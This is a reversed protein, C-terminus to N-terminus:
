QEHFSIRGCQLVQVTQKPAWASPKMQANWERYRQMMKGALERRQFTLNIRETPDQSLDFLWPFAGPRTNSILKNDGSLVAFEPGTRWYLTEHVTESQRARLMFPTLDVGDYSTTTRVGAAALVTPAVDLQSVNRTDIRGRPWAKPWSVVFPVRAGGEFYSLKGGALRDCDSVGMYTAAGNDSSFIIITNDARDSREVADLVAGVSRDLSLIMAAYVRKLPDKNAPTRAIDADLAQFPSHPSLHSLYLFYPAEKAAEIFRIAERSLADTLYENENRVIKPPETDGAKHRMVSVWDATRQFSREGLYPAALSTLGPSGASMYATEGSLFGFFQDFGRSTPLRDPTSGLHWKGVMATKYGAAQLDAAFVRQDPHLGHGGGDAGEPTLYEFGYRQQYQGTLLGARSPSCVSATSYGRRFTVGKRALRDINPTRIGTVSDGSLALDLAGLDDALILIINPREDSAPARAQATAQGSPGSFVLLLVLLWHRM